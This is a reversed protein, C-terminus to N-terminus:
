LLYFVYINWNLDKIPHNFTVFLMPIIIGTASELNVFIIRVDKYDQWWLVNLM